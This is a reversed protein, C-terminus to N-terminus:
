LSTPVFENLTGIGYITNIVAQYTLVKNNTNIDLSLVETVGNVAIWARRLAAAFQEINIVGAFVATFYPIGILTNFVEEGLLTKSAQACAQVVAELDYSLSINGNVDLYIDNYAIGPLSGNVNASLTLNAM